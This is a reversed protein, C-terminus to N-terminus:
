LEEEVNIAFVVVPDDGFHPHIITKIACGRWPRTLRLQIATKPPYGRWIHIVDYRRGVLRKVWYPTILRYEETKQGFKIQDYYEHKLHLTLVATM